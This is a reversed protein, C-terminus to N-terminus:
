RLLIDSAVPPRTVIDHCLRSRAAPGQDTQPCVPPLLICHVNTQTPRSGARRRSLRPFPHRLPIVVAPSVVDLAALSTLRDHRIHHTTNTSTSSSSLFIRVVRPLAPRRHHHRATQRHSPRASFHPDVLGVLRLVHVEGGTTSPTTCPPSGSPTTRAPARSVPYPLSSQGISGPERFAVGM